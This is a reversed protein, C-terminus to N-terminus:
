SGTQDKPLSRSKENERLMRNKMRLYYYPMLAQDLSDLIIYMLLLLTRSSIM